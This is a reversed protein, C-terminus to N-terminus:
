NWWGSATCLTVGVSTGEAGTSHLMCKGLLWCHHPRQSSFPACAGTQMAAPGPPLQRDGPTACAAQLYLPWLQRFRVPPHSMVSISIPLKPFTPHLYVNGLSFRYNEITLTILLCGAHESASCDPHHSHLSCAGSRAAFGTAQSGCAKCEGRGLCLSM